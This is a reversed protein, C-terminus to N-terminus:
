IHRDPVPTLHLTFSLSKQASCGPALASESNTWLSLPPQHFFHSTAKSEYLHTTKRVRTSLYFSKLMVPRASMMGLTKRLLLTFCLMLVKSAMCRTQSGNKTWDFYCFQCASLKSLSFGVFHLTKNKRLNKMWISFHLLQGNEKLNINSLQILM